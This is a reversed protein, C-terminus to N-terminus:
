YKYRKNPPMQHLEIPVRLTPVTVSLYFQSHLSIQFTLYYPNTLLITSAPNLCLGHNRTLTLYLSSPSSGDFYDYINCYYIENTVVPQARTALPM